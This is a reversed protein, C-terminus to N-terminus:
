KEQKLQISSLELYYKDWGLLGSDNEMEKFVGSFTVELYEEQKPFGSPMNCVIGTLDVDITKPVHYSLYYAQTDEHYRMRGVESSVEYVTKGANECGKKPLSDSKKCGALILICILM